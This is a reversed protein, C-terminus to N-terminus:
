IKRADAKNSRFPMDKSKDNTMMKAGFPKQQSTQM